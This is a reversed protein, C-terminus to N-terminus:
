DNVCTESDLDSLADKLTRGCTGVFQTGDKWHAYRRIGELLGKRYADDMALQIKEAFWPTDLTPEIEGNFRGECYHGISTAAETARNTIKM